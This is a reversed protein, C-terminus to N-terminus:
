SGSSKAAGYRKHGRHCRNDPQVMGGTRSILSGLGKDRSIQEIISGDDTVKKFLRKQSMWIQTLMRQWEKRGTV